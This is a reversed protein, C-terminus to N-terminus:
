VYNDPQRIIDKGINEPFWIAISPVDDFITHGGEDLINNGEADKLHLRHIQITLTSENKIERDGPYIVQGTKPNKGQFLQRITNSGNEHLRRDRINQHIQGDQLRSSMLYILCNERPHDQLYMGIVGRLSSFTQSDSERTFKLRYLLQNLCETLSIEAVLHKQEETRLPHGNDLAFGTINQSLFTSIVNRNQLILNDTDHPARVIFWEEGFYDRDLDNYLINPRTLNLVQNLVTERDWENLHRNNVDYEELRQRVDEEHEIIARYAHISASDLWVRCFGLYSRKYGFFRARQLTTDVQGGGLGRPMYTVTLGEVTFGRDMSQGGILIHSYFDSWRIAPTRGRSANIEMIRTNRIAHILRSGAVEEFEPLENEVTRNLDSYAEQFESLLQGKDAEDNSQLLRVWGECINRIWRFFINQSDTLRSPHVMMSRNRQDRRIEGIVVGLFFIQLAYLLSEPPENLPNNNTPIQAIPIERVLHPNQIFFTNGGTYDDGPTLLKIFNPSLRDMINIFLNGQPTATYQLFTHHPFINRLDNIRRYITSVDGENVGVGANANASGRTNLSAQDGEDDIILTPVGKLNVARLLETLNRLRSGNKMVTLLITSCNEKPFTNDAWQELKMQITDRDEGSGPNKIITWKRDFRTDFRLDKKMREYSQDSLPISTGAIIIIIQFHNDNALASLSTFSMTKGSQVYGIVLGTDHNTEKSPDGCMEMIRFTEDIIREGTSNINGNSDAFGKYKLLGDIEEGQYPQWKANNNNRAGTIEVTEAM